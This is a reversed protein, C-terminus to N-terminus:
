GMERRIEGSVSRSAMFCTSAREKPPVTWSYIVPHVTAWSELCGLTRYRTSSVSLM